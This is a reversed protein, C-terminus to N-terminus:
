GPAPRLLEAVRPAAPNAGKRPALQEPPSGAPPQEPPPQYSQPAQYGGGPQGQPQMMYPQASPYGYPYPPPYRYYPYRYYPYGYYGCCPYYTGTYPDYACGGLLSATAVLALLGGSWRM